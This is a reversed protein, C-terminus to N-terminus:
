QYYFSIPHSPVMIAMFFSANQWQVVGAQKAAISVRGASMLFGPACPAIWGAATLVDHFFGSFLTEVIFRATISQKCLNREM